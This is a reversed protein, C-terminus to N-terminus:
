RSRVQRLREVLSAGSDGQPGSGDPGSANSIVGLFVEELHRRSSVGVVPVGVDVATRVVADRSLEAVVVLRTDTDARAETIGPRDALEAALRAIDAGEALDLVTTDSSDVLDAVRGTTVVRGAHMVVVDTCTLEVEALLHSSIVVTRGSDAYRRLIPRMAAIQPPDLGNTPEDLILLDPLGLMAQAIGLRQKMGHSYSKVPRDLAGGLAAVDLVEELHAEEPARGTAAWYAELNQRGTLHPLFGPGEILAGVDALVSSGPSVPRGLVHAVGSDPRILGMVMRMTTTKGAGNPGLLGVVQGKEARWSVDDVARHGDAYTKVLHEVVLPVDALDERVPEHSRQRRRVLATGAGVLLLLVIGAVALTDETDLGTGSSGLPTGSAIPLVLGGTAAVAVQAPTRDNTFSAETSSVLVRWTSGAPMVYTAAPLSVTVPTPQGPTVPVRIPAVLAHPLTPQGGSVRWLSAFLTVTPEASTVTLTVTPSGIVTVSDPVPGTDLAVTQGPLAALVYTSLAVGAAALGPVAVMAAPQGGPPRLAVGKGTLPLTTTRVPESSRLGPYAPMSWLDAPQNRKTSATAYVFQAAPLASERDAGDKVWHDLWDYGAAQDQTEHSSPGDHGGDTWRVAVRAGAATLDRATADAQDIGFLSDAMGQVLLTPATVRNLTPKPSHAHLLDLLQGSPTGTQAAEVFLRCVTPDFRGCDTASTATPASQGSSSPTPAPANASLFFNAAWDQKFPGPGSVSARGAPTPSPGSVAAQPFFADALDHWTIAAVVGDVRSDAGALMLALAGGYSAGMVGVRPDGPADLRVDSRKAALDVLARADAVEYAPDDLHIRGGSKGFGRATWTVVVYGRGQLDAAQGAVSERTGGFGHALLVVPHRGGGPQGYVAADLTVPTGDPEPRVPVTLAEVQGGTAARVTPHATRVAGAAEAAGAGLVPASGLLAAVGAV